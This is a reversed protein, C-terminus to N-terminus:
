RAEGKSTTSVREAAPAPADHRDRTPAAGGPSDHTTRRARRTARWGLLSGVLGAPALLVVAMMVVGYVLPALQAAAISDLGQSTGFDTALRTTFTLVMAGILAGSLTGLGGLVVATLLTLSLTLEYATPAALRIQIAMLGGALGAVTASVMFASVRARALNIGALEAAVEDDRVAAWRRGARGRMLNALLVFVVILLFWAMLAYFQTRSPELGTVLFVADLAWDPADPSSVPLGQEGGLTDSYQRAIGPLAIALTLTAGALYPGHLRAAAVGVLTGVALTVLTAIALVVALPPASESDELLLATTYAGIAMLAGHGLSIQGNIGVLLTLGAAAIALYALETLQRNRFDDLSMLAVLVVVAAVLAVLLHRALTHDRVRSLITPVTM